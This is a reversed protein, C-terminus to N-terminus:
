KGISRSVSSGTQPGHKAATGGSKSVDKFMRNSHHLGQAGGHRGDPASRQSSRREACKPAVKIWGETDSADNTMLVAAVKETSRRAVPTNFVLSGEDASWTVPVHGLTALHESVMDRM